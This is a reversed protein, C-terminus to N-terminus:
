RNPANRHRPEACRIRAPHRAPLADVEERSRQVQPQELSGLLYIHTPAIDQECAQWLTNVVAM